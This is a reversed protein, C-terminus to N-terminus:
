QLIKFTLLAITFIFICLDTYHRYKKITKNEFSKNNEVKDGGIQKLSIFLKLFGGEPCSDLFIMRNDEVQFSYKENLKKNRGLLIKETIPEKLEILFGEHDELDVPAFLGTDIGMNKTRYKKKVKVYAINKIKSWKVSVKKRKLFRMIYFIIRNENIIAFLSLSWFLSIIGAFILYYYIFFLHQRIIISISLLFSAIIWSIRWSMRTNYLKVVKTEM